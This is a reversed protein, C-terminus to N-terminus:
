RNDCAKLLVQLADVVESRTEPNMRALVAEVGATRCERRNRMIEYGKSTLQLCKVRRDDAETVREVLGARELRDAIQTTASLTIKLEKSIASMAQPGDRLIGCVRLQAVPLDIAPDDTNLDFLMRMLRPMLDVISAAQEHLSPDNM